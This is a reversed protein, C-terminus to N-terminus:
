LLSSVLRAINELLRRLRPRRHWDSLTLRESADLYAMQIRLMDAISPADYLLLSAEENLQFSRLDVNSSGVVALTDDISLNKAHLLFRPYRYIEVGGALLDEYYTSQALNVLPQDITQSIVLAVRVGRAVAAHMAALVDEDPIFYPTVIIVQERAQHLQWVLLTEFGKLAYEPGSPLLQLRAQGTAPAIPALAAPPKGTEMSWDGRVLASMSAVVPGTVRAVLERNVVGRRFDRTVINQSGAYGICEDIVFLKRHNRMDRRTRGRLLRFPLTERMRVGQARLLKETGRRWRYSGVPDFLVRADVGRAVARGLARAVRQGVADDAFIYVLLHVSQTAADIDAILRDIVMGYDDILEVQNGDTPPMHGMQMALAAIPDAPGLAPRYPALQAEATQFYPRLGEFRKIRWDPFRPQGIALFLILGPLPFFFILLLWARAAAPSRRQPVVALAGIRIAWELGYWISEAHATLFDM